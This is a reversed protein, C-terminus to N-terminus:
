ARRWAGGGGGRGIAGGRRIEGPGTPRRRPRRSRGTAVGAGAGSLLLPAPPPSEDVVLTWSAPTSSGSMTLDSPVFTKASVPPLSCATSAREGGGRM